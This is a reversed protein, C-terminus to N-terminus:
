NVSPAALGILDYKFTSPTTMTGGNTIYGNVPNGNGLSVVPQLSFKAVNSSVVVWYATGPQVPVQLASSGNNYADLNPYWTPTSGGAPATRLIMLYMGNAIGTTTATAVTGVTNTNPLTGTQDQLSVPNSIPGGMDPVAFIVSYDLFIKGFETNAPLNGAALMWFNGQLSWRLEENADLYLLDAYHDATVKVHQPEWVSSESLDHVYAYRLNGDGVYITPNQSPDYDGFMLMSGNTTANATPRYTVRFEEFIFRTYLQGLLQLRADPIVSPSIPMGYLASGRVPATTSSTIASLFEQGKICIGPGYKTQVVSMDFSGKRNHSASEASVSPALPAGTTEFEARLPSRSALDPAPTRTLRRLERMLDHTDVDTDTTRSEAASDLAHKRFLNALDEVDVTRHVLESDNPKPWSVRSVKQVM